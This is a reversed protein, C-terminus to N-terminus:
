PNLDAEAQPGRFILPPYGKSEALASIAEAVEVPPLTPISSDFQQNRVRFEVEIWGREGPPYDAITRFLTGNDFAVM